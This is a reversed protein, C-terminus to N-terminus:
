VLVLERWELRLWLDTLRCRQVKSQLIYNCKYRQYKSNRGSNMSDRRSSNWLRHNKVENQDIVGVYLNIATDVETM